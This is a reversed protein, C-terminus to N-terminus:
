NKKRWATDALKKMGPVYKREQRVLKTRIDIEPLDLHPGGGIWEDNVKRRLMINKNARVAREIM